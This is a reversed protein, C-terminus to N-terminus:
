GEGRGWAVIALATADTDHDRMNDSLGGDLFRAVAKALHTKSANAPLCFARRLQQPTVVYVAVGLEGCVADVLAAQACQVAIVGRRGWARIDERAVARIGFETLYGCLWATFDAADFTAAKAAPKYRGWVRLRPERDGSIIAHAFHRGLDIGLAVRRM